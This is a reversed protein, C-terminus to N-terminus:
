MVAMDVISRTIYTGIEATPIFVSHMGLRIDLGGGDPISGIQAVKSYGVGVGADTQGCALVTSSQDM